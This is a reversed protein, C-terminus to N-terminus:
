PQDGLPRSLIEVKRSAYDATLELQFVLATQFPWTSFVSICLGGGIDAGPVFRDTSTRKRPCIPFCKSTRLKGSRFGFGVVSTSAVLM